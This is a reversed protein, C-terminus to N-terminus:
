SLSNNRDPASRPCINQSHLTAPCPPRSSNFHGLYSGMIPYGYVLLSQQTHPTRLSITDSPEFSPTNTGTAPKDITHDRTLYASSPFHSIQSIKRSMPHIRQYILPTVDAEIPLLGHRSKGEPHTGINLHTSRKQWRRVHDQRHPSFRFTTKNLTRLDTLM